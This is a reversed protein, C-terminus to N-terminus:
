KKVEQLSTKKRHERKSSCKQQPRAAKLLTPTLRPSHESVPVLANHPYIGKCLLLLLIGEQLLELHMGFCSSDFLRPSISRPLMMAELEKDGKKKM